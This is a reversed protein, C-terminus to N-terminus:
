DIMDMVVNIAGYLLYTVSLRYNGEMSTAQKINM